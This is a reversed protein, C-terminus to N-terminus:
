SAIATAELTQGADTLAVDVGITRARQQIQRWAPAPLARSRAIADRSAVDSAARDARQEEIMDALAPLVEAPQDSGRRLGFRSRTVAPAPEEVSAPAPAREEEAHIGSVRARVQEDSWDFRISIRAPRTELFGTIAEDVIRFLGSEVDEALRRDPGISDFDIPMQHRRSRERAVRRITPVLGLDDLVMPRVDFIFSKTADLTGEVMAVLQAVESAAREPDRVVLRQVIQAQLAINALSQAPGDHM